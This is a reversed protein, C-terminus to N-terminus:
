EEREVECDLAPVRTWWNSDVETGEPFLCISWGQHTHAPKNTYALLKVKVKPKPEDLIEWESTLLDSASFFQIYKSDKDISSGKVWSLMRIKKGQELAPLVESFKM